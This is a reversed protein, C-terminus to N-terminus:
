KCEAGLSIVHFYFDRVLGFVKAHEPPIITKIVQYDYNDLPLNVFHRAFTGPSCGFLVVGGGLVAHIKLLDERINSSLEDPDYKKLQGALSPKFHLDYFPTRPRLELLLLQNCLCWSLGTFALRSSYNLKFVKLKAKHNVRFNIYLWALLALGMIVFVIFAGIKLPIYGLSLWCLFYTFVMGVVGLFIVVLVGAGLLGYLNIWQYFFTVLSGVMAPLLRGFDRYLLGITLHNFVVGRVHPRNKQTLNIKM